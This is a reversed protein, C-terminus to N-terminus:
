KGQTQTLKGIGPKCFAHKSAGSFEWFHMIQRTDADIKGFQPKCFDHKSSESFESFHIIQGTDADIERFQPKCYARSSAKFFSFLRHTYIHTHTYPTKGCKEHPLFRRFPGYVCVDMHMKRSQQVTSHKFDCKLRSNAYKEVQFSFNELHAHVKARLPHGFRCKSRLPLRRFGRKEYM